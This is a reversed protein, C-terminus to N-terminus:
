RLSLGVLFAHYGCLVAGIQCQIRAILTALHNCLVAQLLGLSIGIHHGYLVAGHGGISIGILTTHNDCLIAIHQGQCIEYYYLAM